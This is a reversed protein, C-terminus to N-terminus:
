AQDLVAMTAKQIEEVSGSGAITKLIGMQKYHDILPATQSHFIKLRKRVTVPKDDAREYLHEGNCKQFPCKEFPKYTKHFPVQCERCILRGSLRSVLVEDPVEIYLVTDLTKGHVKLLDEMAESQALTRPFGDLIAGNKADSRSIREELISITLADPILGGQLIYPEIQIGLSTKQFVHERFLDGSAVHPIGLKRCLHEAQTGKGSGPAGLLVIFM